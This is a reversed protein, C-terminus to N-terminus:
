SLSETAAAKLNSPRCAIHLRGDELQTFQLKSPAKRFQDSNLYSGGLDHRLSLGDVWEMGPTTEAVMEVGHLPPQPQRMGAITAAPAALPPLGVRTAVLAALM